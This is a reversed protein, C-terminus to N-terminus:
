GCRLTDTPDVHLARWTPIVAALTAAAFLVSAGILISWGDVYPVGHLHDQLLRGALLGGLTGLCIGMAALRWVRGVVLAAVDMQPAGLAMRIGIERVRRSTVLSVIGYVGVVSIFLALTSLGLAVWANRREDFLILNMHSAVSNVDLIPINPDIERLTARVPDVVDRIDNRAEVLLLGFGQQDQSYPVYVYMQPDEYLSAVKNDEAIGVIERPQPSRRGMMITKGIPNEGPWFRRAMAQNIVAVGASTATDSDEIGRGSLIRTGMISLYNPGVMTYKIRFYQEGPPPQKGPITFDAAWGSENSQAPLRIAYSVLGVGPLSGARRRAEEFFRYTGANDYGKLGPVLYFTAVNRHTDFGPNVNMSYILSHVVMASVILVIASLMVQGCILFDRLGFRRPGAAATFATEKLSTGVNTRTLRFAPVIGVLLITMLSLIGTFVMLRADLRADIVLGGIGRPVLAPFVEILWSGMLLGAVGSLISVIVAERVADGVLQTRSAGLAARVALERVRSEGRALSLNAVNACAILLVLGVLALFVAGQSQDSREEDLYRETSLISNNYQESDRLQWKSVLSKLQANASATMQLSSRGVIEFWRSYPSELEDALGRRVFPAQGATVWFDTRQQRSLGLFGPRTIGVITFLTDNLEIQSGIVDPRGALQQQWFAHNIVVVPTTAQSSDDDPRLGRGRDIPIGLAEFYNGSVFHIIMTRTEDKQRFTVGRRGIAVVEQLATVTRVVDKYELYSMMGFASKPSKLQIRVLQEPSRIPIPRFYLADLLSFVGASCGIGIALTALALLSYGPNRALSRLAVYFLRM